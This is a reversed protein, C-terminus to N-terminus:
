INNSQRSIQYTQERGCYEVIQRAPERFNRGMVGRGGPSPVEGWIRVDRFRTQNDHFNSYINQAVVSLTLYQGNGSDRYVEGEQTPPIPPIAGFSFNRFIAQDDQFKTHMNETVISFSPNNETDRIEEVYGGDGWPTERGGL